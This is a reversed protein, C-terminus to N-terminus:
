TMSSGPKPPLSPVDSFTGSRFYRAPLDDLSRARWHDETRAMYELVAEGEAPMRGNGTMSDLVLQTPAVHLLGDVRRADWSVAVPDAPTLVVVDAGRGTVLAGTLDQLRNALTSPAGFAPYLLLQGGATVPAVEAAAYSGTVLVQGPLSRKVETLLRDIGNPALLTLSAGPRLLPPSQEARARLLAQWDVEEVGRRGRRVLGSEQLTTLLRTIYGPSLEGARALRAPRVPPTADVLLRVLRGAKAGSLARRDEPAEPNPDRTAGDTRIFVTPRAIRLFTNGTLDLYAVGGERLIQQVSRALWSAVVLLLPEGGRSSCAGERYREVLRRADLPTVRYKPQVLLQADDRQDGRLTLWRDPGDPVEDGSAGAFNLEWSPPLLRALAALACRVLQREDFGPV